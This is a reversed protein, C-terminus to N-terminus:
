KKSLILWMSVKICSGFWLWIPFHPLVQEKIHALRLTLYACGQLSPRLTWFNCYENLVKTRYVFGIICVLDKCLIWMWLYKFLAVTSLPVETSLLILQGGNKITYAFSCIFGDNGQSVLIQFNVICIQINRVSIGFYYVCERSAWQRSNITLFHSIFCSVHMWVWCM